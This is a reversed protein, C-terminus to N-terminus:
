FWSFVRMAGRHKIVLTKPNCISWLARGGCMAVSRPFSRVQYLSRHFASLFLCAVTYQSTEACRRKRKSSLPASKVSCFQLSGLIPKKTGHCANAEKIDHINCRRYQEREDKNIINHSLRTHKNRGGMSLKFGYKLALDRAALNDRGALVSGAGSV